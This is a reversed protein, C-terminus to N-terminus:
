GVVFPAKFGICCLNLQEKSCACERTKSCNKSVEGHVILLLKTQTCDSEHLCKILISLVSTLTGLIFLALPLLIIEPELSFCLLTICSFLIQFCAKIQCQENYQHRSLPVQAGFILSSSKGNSIRMKRVQSFFHISIYIHTYIYLVDHVPCQM